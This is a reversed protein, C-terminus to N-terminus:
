RDGDLHGCCLAAYRRIIRREQLAAGLIRHARDSRAVLLLGSTDKDLRHVIGERDEGGGEALDGGRGKLANVLTGTWNGPAPHVVMGPAKNVVLLDDDEFVVDLPIDEGLVERGPPPPVEVAIRDGDIPRYSARERRGGVLVHGNAILTAAQTRSIDIKKAVFTDLRTGAEDDATVDLFHKAPERGAPLNAEM